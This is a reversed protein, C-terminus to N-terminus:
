RKGLRCDVVIIEVLERPYDQRALDDLKSEIFDAEYYTPVIISLAQLRAPDRRINGPKNLWRRKLYYYALPVGFYVIALDVAVFLL